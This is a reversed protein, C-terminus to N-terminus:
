KIIMGQGTPLSLVEAGASNAVADIAATQSDCGAHAYDDFLVVGGETVLDWFFRLAEREAYACNLDLHLFAIKRCLLSPLIEPVRGQVIRTNRWQSFNRRAREVDVVYGGAALAQEAKNRLSAEQPSFQEFVPGAFTDVLYFDKGRTDWDLRQMIASSMFGANVGCEVFDGPARVATVAAWLAVHIRWEFQPDFGASAEIGRAYAAQFQPERLFHDNHVTLLGDRAYHKRRDIVDYGAWNIARKTWAKVFSAWPKETV